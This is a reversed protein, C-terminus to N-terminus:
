LHLYGDVALHTAYGLGAFVPLVSWGLPSEWFFFGAVAMFASYAALSKLSHFVKPERCHIVRANGSVAYYVFVPAFLLLLYKEHWPSPNRESVKILSDLDPLFNSYVFVLLGAFLPGLFNRGLLLGVVVYFLCVPLLVRKAVWVLLGRHEDFEGTVKDFAHGIFRALLGDWVRKLALRSQEMGDSAPFRTFIVRPKKAVKM